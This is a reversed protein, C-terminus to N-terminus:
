AVRRGSLLTLAANRSCFERQITHGRKLLIRLTWFEGDFFLDAAAIDSGDDRANVIYHSPSVIIFPIGYITRKM